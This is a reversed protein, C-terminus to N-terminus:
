LISTFNTENELNNDNDVKMIPATEALNFENYIAHSITIFGGRIDDDKLIYASTRSTPKNVFESTDLNGSTLESSENFSANNVLKIGNSEISVSHILKREISNEKVDEIDDEKAVNEM